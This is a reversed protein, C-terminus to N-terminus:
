VDGSTGLEGLVQAESDTGDDSGAEVSEGAGLLQRM